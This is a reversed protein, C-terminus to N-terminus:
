SAVLAPCFLSLLFRPRGEEEADEEERTVAENGRGRRAAATGVVAHSSHRCTCGAAPFARGLPQRLYPLCLPPHYLLLREEKTVCVGM